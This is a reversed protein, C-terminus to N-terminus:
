RALRKLTLRGGDRIQMRLECNKMLRMGVLPEIDAQDVLVRRARREWLVTAVFVDFLCNSGDALTGRDFTHWPLGLQEIVKPPLTLTGTFGTDVVAEIIRQRRPGSITLRIRAEDYAVIGTIM